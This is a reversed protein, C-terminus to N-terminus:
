APITCGSLNLVDSVTSPYTLGRSRSTQWSDSDNTSWRPSMQVVPFPLAQTPTTAGDITEGEGHDVERLLNWIYSSSVTEIGDKRPLYSVHGDHPIKPAPDLLDVLHHLHGALVAVSNALDSSTLSALPFERAETVATLITRQANQDISKVIETIELQEFKRCLEQVLDSTHSDTAEDGDMQVDKLLELVSEYMPGRQGDLWLSANAIPYTQSCVHADHNDREQRVATRKNFDHPSTDPSRQRKSNSGWMLTTLVSAKETPTGSDTPSATRTPPPQLAREITPVKELCASASLRKEPRSRLMSSSLFDILEDSGLDQVFEFIKRFWEKPSFDRLTTHPLGYALELAVIGLSWVDVAYTYPKTEWEHIEPAAYLYTGVWTQFKTLGNRDHKALGLDALKIALPNRCSVLINAPKIDRHIFGHSNLYEVAQLGQSLVTPTEEFAIPSACHVDALNGLPLYEMVILPTATKRFNM